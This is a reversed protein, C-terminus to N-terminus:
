TTELLTNENVDATMSSQCATDRNVPNSRFQGSRVPDGCLLMHLIKHACCYQSKSLVCSFRVRHTIAGKM